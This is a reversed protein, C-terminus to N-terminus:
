LLERLSERVRDAHQRIFGRSERWRQITLWDALNELGGAAAIQL